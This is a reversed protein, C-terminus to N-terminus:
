RWSRELMAVSAAASEDALRQWGERVSPVEPAWGTAERLARNSVRQSRRLVRTPPLAAALAALPARLRERGVAAALAADAEARRLPADDVVNYTGAPAALAAAVARGADDLWVRAVYARAPALSM